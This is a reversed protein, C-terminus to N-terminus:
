RAAPKIRVTRVLGIFPIALLAFAAGIAFPATMRGNFLRVHWLTGALISAVLQGLGSVTYFLGIAGARQHIPVVDSVMAKGVGETLAQYLGYLPFLLWPVSASRTTAMSLYVAAYVMWAAIIVPKRGIRDSLTGLPLAALAYVANYTAFALIISTFTLGLEKSRLILFADSSNGFSFLANAAILMWLPRPFSQLISPPAASALPEHPTDRVALASLIASAAGPLLAVFFLWTLPVDPQLVIIALAVLPGLVAGCTDAARHFGFAAGRFQPSTSDAILADRAGTRVSKGFRDLVRGALFLPWGMAFAALGMLPKSIASIAYGAVVFPKRRRFRDSLAGTAL